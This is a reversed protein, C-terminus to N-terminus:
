GQAHGDPRPDGYYASISWDVVRAMLPQRADAAADAPLAQTVLRKIHVIIAEPPVGTGRQVCVYECVAARLEALEADGLLRSQALSRTLRNSGVNTPGVHASHLHQLEPM